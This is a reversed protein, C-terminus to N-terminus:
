RPNILSQELAIPVKPLTRTTQVTVLTTVRKLRFEKKEEIKSIYGFIPEISGVSEYIGLEYSNKEIIEEYRLISM